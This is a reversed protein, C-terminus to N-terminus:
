EAAQPGAGGAEAGSPPASEGALWKLLWKETEAGGGARVSEPLGIRRRSEASKAARYLIM